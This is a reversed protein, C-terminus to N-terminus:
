RRGGGRLAKKFSKAIYEMHGANLSQHVPLLVLRGKLWHAGNHVSKNGLVEEPLDPWSRAPIGSAYLRVLTRERDRVFIPFAYPCIDKNLNRFPISEEGSERLESFLHEFNARRREMISELNVSMARVAREYEGSASDKEWECGNPRDYPAAGKWGIGMRFMVTKIINKAAWTLFAPSRKATGSEMARGPSALVGGGPIPLLKRPSYITINGEGIGAAPTLVHAADEIISAGCAASFRKAEDLTSPFGFYHVLVLVDPRNRGALQGLRDWDPCLDKGIPYFVINVKERRLPAVADDCFYDPLWVTNGGGKESLAKKIGERLALRGSKFFATDTDAWAHHVAPRGLTVRLVDRIDPVPGAPIFTKM